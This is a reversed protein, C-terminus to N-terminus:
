KSLNCVRVGTFAQKRDWKGLILYPTHVSGTGPPTASAPPWISLNLWLFLACDISRGRSPGSRQCLRRGILDSGPGSGFCSRGPEANRGSSGGTVCGCRRLPPGRPAGYGPRMGPGTEAEDRAAARDKGRAEIRALDRAAGLVGGFSRRIACRVGSRSVVGARGIRGGM